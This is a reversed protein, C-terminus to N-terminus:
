SGSEADNAAVCDYEYSHEPKYETVWLGPVFVFFGGAITGGDAKENRRFNHSAPACGSKEITVDNNSFSVKSDTYVAQGTGVFEDNVYIRADPDSSKIVTSSSCASLCLLLICLYIIKM